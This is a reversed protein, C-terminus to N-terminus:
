SAARAVMLGGFLVALTVLLGVGPLPFGPLGEPPPHMGMPGGPRRMARPHLVRLTRGDSLPLLVTRADVARADPLADLQREFADSAVVRQGAANDLALAVHLREALANLADRQAAVPADAAPLNSQALDAWASVRERWAERGEARAHDINRQFVWGSILAFVLLVAVVTLYIRLYLTKM